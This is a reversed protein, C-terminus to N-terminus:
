ETSFKKRGNETIVQISESGRGMMDTLFEHTLEEGKSNLYKGDEQQEIEERDPETQFQDLDVLQELETVLENFTKPGVDLKKHISYGLRILEMDNAAGAEGSRQRARLEGIKEMLADIEGELRENREELYDIDEPTKQELMEPGKRILERVARKVMDSMKGPHKKEGNSYDGTFHQDAFEQWKVKEQNSDLLVTVRKGKVEDRSYRAEAM